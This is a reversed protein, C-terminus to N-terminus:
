GRSPRFGRAAAQPFNRINETVNYPCDDNQPYIDILGGKESRGFAPCPTIEKPKRERTCKSPYLFNGRTKTMIDFDILRHTYDYTAGLIQGGM